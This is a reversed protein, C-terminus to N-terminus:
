LTEKAAIKPKDKPEKVVKNVLSASTKPTTLVPTKTHKSVMDDLIDKLKEVGEFGTALIVMDTEVAETDGDVLIGEKYFSFSPTKKLKISGKEVQNYFDEPVTSILCSNLEQLFSHKPVMGFQDLFLKHQIHTEIFKLFAWRLPSLLTALLSFLFREGTHSGITAPGPLDAQPWSINHVVSFPPAFGSSRFFEFHKEKQTTNEIRVMQQPASWPMTLHQNRSALLPSVSEEFWNKLLRIIWPLMTWPTYSGGKLCRLAKGQLFNQFTQFWASGHSRSVFICIILM